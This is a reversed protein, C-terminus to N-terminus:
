DRRTLSVGLSVASAIGLFLGVVTMFAWPGNGGPPDALMWWVYGGGLTFLVSLGALLLWPPTKWLFGM